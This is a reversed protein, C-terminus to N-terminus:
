WCGLLLLPWPRAANSPEQRELLVWALLLLLPSARPPAAHDDPLSLPRGLV